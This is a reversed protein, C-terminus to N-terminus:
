TRYFSGTLCADDTCNELVSGDDSFLVGLVRVLGRERVRDGNDWLLEGDWYVGLPMSEQYVVKGSRDYGILLATNTM